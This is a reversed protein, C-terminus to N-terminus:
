PNIRIRVRTGDPGSRIEVLDSLQNVLWLGRAELGPGPAYRGELPDTIHGSDNVECVIARRQDTWIRLVGNGGGYQISNSVMENVALVLDFARDEGLGSLLGYHHVRARLALLDDFGFSCTETQEPPPALPWLDDRCMARADAFHRSLHTLGGSIAEPHTRWADAIVREPLAEVDYPCLVTVSFQSLALNILSEHRTAEAIEDTNRGPWIPEGVFRAPRGEQEFLFEEVAPIIRGPNRGLETMDLFHAHGNWRPAEARLLDIHAGPVAIMVRERRAIGEGVFSMVSDVFDAAGRYFLAQHAFGSECPVTTM